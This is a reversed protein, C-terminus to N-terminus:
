SLAPVIGRWRLIAEALALDEPTTVKLNAPDGAYIHVPWGLAELLASDDTAPGPPAEAHARRLVETAFVQPTQAAYLRSRDPTRLVAGGPGAEKITDAVPIAAIAAGTGRAAQLGRAILDPTLCPRAGDHVLTWRSPPSAELGAWVSDRRTAGGACVAVVKRLGMVQNLAQGEELSGAPLILVIAQIEPAQELVRLPYAILPRGLLPLFAKPAGGMRQGSGAAVLIAIADVPFAGM